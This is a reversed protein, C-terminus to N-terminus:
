FFVKKGGIVICQQPLERTQATVDLSQAAKGYGHDTAWDLAKFFMPHDPGALLIAAVHALVEDRSVAARLSARFADPPRGAMVAGRQPGSGGGPVM